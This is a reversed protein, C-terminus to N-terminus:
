MRAPPLLALPVWTGTAEVVFNESPPSGYLNAYPRTKFGGSGYGFSVVMVAYVMMGSVLMSPSLTASTASSVASRSLAIAIPSASSM